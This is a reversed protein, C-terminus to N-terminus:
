MKWADSAGHVAPKRPNQRPPKLTPSRLSGQFREGSARFDGFSPPLDIWGELKIDSINLLKKREM